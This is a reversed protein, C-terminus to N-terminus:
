SPGGETGAIYKSMDRGTLAGVNHYSSAWRRTAGAPVNWWPWM